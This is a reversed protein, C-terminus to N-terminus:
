WVYHVLEGTIAISRFGIDKKSYIGFDMHIVDTNQHTYESM